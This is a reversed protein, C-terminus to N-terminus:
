VPGRWWLYTSRFDLSRFNGTATARPCPVNVDQVESKQKNRHDRKNWKVAESIQDRVHRTEIM